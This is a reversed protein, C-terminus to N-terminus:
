HLNESRPLVVGHIHQGVSRGRDTTISLTRHAALSLCFKKEVTSKCIQAGPWPSSSPQHGATRQGSLNAFWGVM